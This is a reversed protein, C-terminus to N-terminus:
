VPRRRAARKGHQLNTIDAGSLAKAPSGEDSQEERM